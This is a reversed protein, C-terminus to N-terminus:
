LVDMLRRGLWETYAPPIAEALEARSMWDIGMAERAVALSAFHGAVTMWSGPAATRGVAVATEEHANHWPPWFMPPSTEFIRHRYVRLGDFMTGCLMLPDLLPAGPVNEIVYPVGSARLLSRTPEVLDPHPEALGDWVATSVAYRQCPPSAHIADPERGNTAELWDSPNMADGQRFAFPYRPMPEIDIGVVDFGARDYGM